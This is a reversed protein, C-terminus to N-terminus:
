HGRFLPDDPPPKSPSVQFSETGAPLGGSHHMRSIGIALRIKERLEIATDGEPHEAVDVAEEVTLNIHVFESPTPDTARTQGANSSVRM